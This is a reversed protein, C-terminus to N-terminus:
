DDFKINDEAKLILMQETTAMVGTLCEVKYIMMHAETNTKAYKSIIEKVDDASVLRVGTQLRTLVNRLTNGM